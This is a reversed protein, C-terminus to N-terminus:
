YKWLMEMMRMVIWSLNLLRYLEKMYKIVVCMHWVKGCWECWGYVIWECMFVDFNMVTVEDNVMNCCVRWRADYMYILLMFDDILLNISYKLHSYKLIRLEGYKCKREVIILMYLM